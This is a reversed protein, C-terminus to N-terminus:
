SASRRADLGMPESMAFPVLVPGTRRTSGQRLLTTSRHGGFPSWGDEHEYLGANVAVHCFDLPGFVPMSGFVTLGLAYDGLELMERLERDGRYAVVPLVPCYTEELVVPSDADAELVVLDYCGDPLAVEGAGRHVTGHASLDSFWPTAADPLLLRGSDTDPDRNDGVRVRGALSLLEALFPEYVEASVYLRETALCDQANNFMRTRVATVAARHLDAGPTVVMACVGPGQCLLRIHPPLQEDLTRAHARSGCYIVAQAEDVADRAFDDWRSTSLELPIGAAVAHAALATASSRSVSSPRVVVRNGALAPAVAFLFMSYMPLTAPPAAYVTGVGSRGRLWDLAAPTPSLAASLWALETVATSRTEVALLLDTLGALDRTVRESLAELRSISEQLLIEM